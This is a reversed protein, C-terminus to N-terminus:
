RAGDVEYEMAVDVKGDALVEILEGARGTLSDVNWPGFLFEWGKWLKDARMDEHVCGEAKACLQATNQSPKGDGTQMPM